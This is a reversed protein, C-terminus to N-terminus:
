EIIQNQQLMKNQADGCDNAGDKGSRGDATAADQEQQHKSNSCGRM